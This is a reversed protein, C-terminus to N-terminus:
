TEVLGEENIDSISLNAKLMALKIAMRRGLGSGAGTLFIHKGKVSKKMLYGKERALTYLGWLSMFIIFLHSKSQFGGRKFFKMKLLEWVLSAKDCIDM